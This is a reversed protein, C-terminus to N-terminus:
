DYSFSKGKVARSTLPIIELKKLSIFFGFEEKRVDRNYYCRSAHASLDNTRELSVLLYDDGRNMVKGYRVFTENEILKVYLPAKKLRLFTNLDM